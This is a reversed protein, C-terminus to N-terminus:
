ARPAQSRDRLAQEVAPPVAHDLRGGLRAIERVFSSALHSREPSTALFVTEVSGIQLNNQAMRLEVELDGVGRLGKVLTAIELEECLDVLLGEFAVVEVGPGVEDSIMAVREDASFMAQKSPNGVVAIVLRPFLASARAIIDLHGYTVPDFSGPYIAAGSM